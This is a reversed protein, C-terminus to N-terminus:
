QTEHYLNVISWEETGVKAEVYGAKSNYRNSENAIVRGESLMRRERLISKWYRGLERNDERCDARATQFEHATAV